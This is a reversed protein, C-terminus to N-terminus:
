GVIGRYKTHIRMRIHGSDCWRYPAGEVDRLVEYLRGDEDKIRDGSKPELPENCLLMESAQVLFDWVEYEVAAGDTDLTGDYTKSRTGTIDLTLVDGDAWREYILPVGNASDILSGAALTGLDFLTSM